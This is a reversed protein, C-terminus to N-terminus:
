PRGVQPRASRLITDACWRPEPSRALSAADARPCDIPRRPQWIALGNLRDRAALARRLDFSRVDSWWLVTGGRLRVTWEGQVANWRPRVGSAAALARAQVATVSTGDHVRAGRPWTFGYAAVGLVLRNAPVTRRAIRIAARQWPLGGIPGPGSWPGDEDYAMLVVSAVKSLGSLHYGLAAYSSTTASVDM